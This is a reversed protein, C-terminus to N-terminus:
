GFSKMTGGIHVRICAELCLAIGHLRAQLVWDITPFDLGRAAIDTAFLVM